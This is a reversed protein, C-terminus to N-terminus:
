RTGRAANERAWKLMELHGGGGRELVLEHADVRVVPLRERAGVPCRSTATRRRTSARRRTWPCGNERAWKLTELHGHEAAGACTWVDWPCANERALKLAELDGRAAALTCMEEYGMSAALLRTDKNWPCGNERAWKLTELHGNEAAYECTREDVPLRERAGRLTELHGGGAANSCLNTRTWEDWPRRERAGM